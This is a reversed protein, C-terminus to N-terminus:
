FDNNNYIQDGRKINGLVVIYVSAAFLLLQWYLLKKQYIGYRKSLRQPRKREMTIVVMGRKHKLQYNPFYDTTSFTARSSFPEQVIDALLITKKM